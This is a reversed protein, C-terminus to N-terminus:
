NENKLTTRDPLQLNLNARTIGRSPTFNSYAFESSLIHM